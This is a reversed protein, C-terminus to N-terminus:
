AVRNERRFFRVLVILAFIGGLALAGSSLWGAPEILATGFFYGVIFLLLSKPITALLNVLVFRIYKMHAAGAAVLVAFGAAHTWKGAILLQTGSGAFASVLTAIHETSLGLRKRWRPSLKGLLGRGIGYLLSDGVLDALVVCIIVEKGNLLGQAALSAAIVTVIPGEIVALLALVALGHTTVLGAVDFYLTM